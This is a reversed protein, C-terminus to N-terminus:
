LTEGGQALNPAVPTTPLRDSLRATMEVFAALRRRSLLEAGNKSIFEIFGREYVIAFPPPTGNARQYAARYAVIAAPAEFKATAM